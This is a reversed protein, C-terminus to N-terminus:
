PFSVVIEAVESCCKDDRLIQRLLDTETIIGVVRGDDVVPLSGLKDELMRCAATDLDDDPRVSIVPSSMADAVPMGRLLDDVPIQGIREFLRPVFLHHRLDRDTVIGALRRDGDLVPLHRIKHRSMLAVAAHCSDSAGVTIVGRSMLDAVNM